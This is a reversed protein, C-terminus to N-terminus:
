GNHAEGGAERLKAQLTELEETKADLKAQVEATAAQAAAIEKAAKTEAEARANGSASQMLAKERAIRDPKTVEAHSAILM